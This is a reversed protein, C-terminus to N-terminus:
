SICAWIDHPQTPTTSDLLRNLALPRTQHAGVLTAFAPVRHHKVTFSYVMAPCTCIVRAGTNSSEIHVSMTVAPPVVM